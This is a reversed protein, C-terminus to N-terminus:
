VKQHKQGEPSLAVYRWMTGGSKQFNGFLQFFDVKECKKINQAVNECKKFFDFKECQKLAVVKRFIAGCTSFVVKECKKINQAKRLYRWM